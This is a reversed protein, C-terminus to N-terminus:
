IVRVRGGQGGPKRGDPRPRESRFNFVPAAAAPRQPCPRGSLLYRLADPAHTIEHPEVACDEPRHADHQLMPLTRILNQCTSFILLGPQAEGGPEGSERPHLWERVNM